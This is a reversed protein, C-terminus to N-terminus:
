QASVKTVREHLLAAVLVVSRSPDCSAARHDVTAAADGADEADAGLERAEKRRFLRCGLVDAVEIVGKLALRM